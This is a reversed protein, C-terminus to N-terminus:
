FFVTNKQEENNDFGEIKYEFDEETKFIIINSIYISRILIKQFESHKNYTINLNYINGNSDINYTINELNYLTLKLGSSLVLTVHKYEKKAIGRLNEKNVCYFFNVKDINTKSFIKSGSSHYINEARLNNKYLKIRVNYLMPFKFYGNPENNSIILM